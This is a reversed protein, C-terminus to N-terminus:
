VHARGIQDRQDTSTRYNTRDLFLNLTHGDAVNWTFNGLIQQNKAQNSNKSGQAGTASNGNNDYTNTILQGPVNNTGGQYNNPQNEAIVYFFLKDQIIPGSVWYDQSLSSSNYNVSNRNTLKGTSDYVDDANPRWWSTSPTFALRTGYSFDNTGQKITGSIVGGLSSGYKADIGNSVSTVSQYAENPIPVPQNGRQQDTVQFQNVFYSTEASSGGNFQPSLGHSSTVHVVNSQMSAVNILDATTIPLNNITKYDWTQTQQTTSTDIANVALAAAKVSVEGLQAANGSAAAAGFIVPSNSDARVVAERQDVVSGNKLLKVTYTGPILGSVTYYGNTDPKVTTDYGTAPNVFELAVDKGDAVKGYIGGTINQAHAQGIFLPSAILLSLALARNASHQLLSGLKM